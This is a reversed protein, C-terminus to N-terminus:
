HFSFVALCLMPPHTPMSLSSNKKLLCAQMWLLKLIGKIEALRTIFQGLWGGDIFSDPNLANTQQM